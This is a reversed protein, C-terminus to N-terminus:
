RAIIAGTIRAVSFSRVQGVSHDVATLTGAALRVPTVLLAHREGESDAYGIQVESQDALASRLTALTEPASGQPVAVGSESTRSASSRWTAIAATILGERPVVGERSPSPPTRPPTRLPRSPATLVRGDPSEAIPAAGISQLAAILRDPPETSVLVGPAIEVLDIGRADALTAALLAPDESRVYSGALGVRLQGHKRGLDKILYELGQPVPTASLSALSDLIGEADRGADFGRRLSAESFRYVAGGGTSEVDALVRLTRSVDARLPGPAVATFDGQILVHDVPEPLMAAIIAELTDNDAGHALARGASGLAGAGTVGLLEAHQCIATVHGCRGAGSLRPRRDALVECIDDPSLAAPYDAFLALVEARLGPLIALDAADSLAHPPSDGQCPGRVLEPARSTRWWTQALHAWRQAPTDAVWDDYAPTPRWAEEFAADRAILGAAFALEIWFVATPEDVDLARATATLDRVGLGGSRLVPPAFRSWYEALEQVADIAALAHQGCIDDVREPAPTTRPERPPWAPDRIVRPSGTRLTRLALGVERPLVVTNTGRPVLLDRALLWEIPTSATEVTVVRDAREVKGTPPGWMLSDLLEAVKVPADALTRELSEPTLLALKPRTDVCRPGLGGPNPGLADRATRVLRYPDDGWALALRVLRDLATTIPTTLEPDFCARIDDASTPEELAALTEAVQLTFADLSDLARAVSSASGARTALSGLDAPVPQCLDPRARLLEALADDDRLRLDDALSRM